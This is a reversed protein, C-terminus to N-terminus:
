MTLSRMPNGALLRPCAPVRCCRRWLARQRPQDLTNQICLVRHATLPQLYLLVKLTTLNAAPREVATHPVASVKRHTLFKFLHRTPRAACDYSKLYVQVTGLIRSGTALIANRLRSPTKLRYTGLRSCQWARSHPVVSGGRSKTQHKPSGRHLRLRTM